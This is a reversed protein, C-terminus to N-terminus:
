TRWYSNDWNRSGSYTLEDVWLSDVYDAYPIPAFNNLSTTLQCDIIVLNSFVNEIYVLGTTRLGTIVGNHSVVGIETHELIIQLLKSQMNTATDAHKSGDPNVLDDAIMVSFWVQREDEYAGTEDQTVNHHIQLTPGYTPHRAELIFPYPEGSDVHAHFLQIDCDVGITGTM